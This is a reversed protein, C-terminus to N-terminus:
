AASRAARPRHRAAELERMAQDLLRADRRDGKMGARRGHVVLADGVVLEGRSEDLESGAGTIRVPPRLSAACTRSANSAVPAAATISARPTARCGTATRPLQEASALALGVRSPPGPPARSSSRARRRAGRRAARSGSGACTRGRTRPGARVRGPSALASCSDSCLASVSALALRQQVSPPRGTTSGNAARQAAEAGSYQQARQRRRGHIGARLPTKDHRASGLGRDLTVHRLVDDEGGFTELLELVLELQEGRRLAALDGLADLLRALEAVDGLVGLVVVGLVLLRHELAPDRLQLLLQAHRRHDLGLVEGGVDHLDARDHVDLVFLGALRDLVRDDARGLGLRSSCLSELSDGTPRASIPCLRLSVTATFTGRPGARLSFIVFISTPRLYARRRILAFGIAACGGAVVALGTRPLCPRGSSIASRRALARAGARPRGPRTGTRTGPRRASRPRHEGGVLVQCAPSSVSSRWRTAPRIAARRPEPLAANRSRTSRVRCSGAARAGRRARRPASRAASRARGRRGSRRRRRRAACGGRRSRAARRPSGSARGLRQARRRVLM